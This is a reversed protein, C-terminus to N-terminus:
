REAKVHLSNNLLGTNLYHVIARLTKMGAQVDPDSEATNQLRFTQTHRFAYTPTPPRGMDILINKDLYWYSATTYNYAFGDRGEDFVSHGALLRDQKDIGLLDLISPLIDAHQTIRDPSYSLKKQLGPV